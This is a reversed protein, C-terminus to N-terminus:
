LELASRLSDDLGGGLEFIREMEGDSLEFDFVDFNERRHERSEAKPIASVMPQQLLWRLAVQAETKDHRSAISSLTDDNAVDGVDLPSYATLMVDNEVCFALLDSRDEYPHYEVQNTLIPTDSAGIAEELQDVSFNSVGIHRVSGDDQLRNMADISEETPVEDSPSHILLLDVYGTDLRALSEQTTELVDDHALNKPDIKTTLFVEDRDVPAGAIAQGVVDENDYMQATDVHRYGIELADLVAQRGDEATLRATGFGLAPVEADGVTVYEM